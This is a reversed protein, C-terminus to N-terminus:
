IWVYVLFVRIGWLMITVFIAESRAPPVLAEPAFDKEHTNIGTHNGGYMAEEIHSPRSSYYNPMILNM